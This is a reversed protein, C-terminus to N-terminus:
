VKFLLVQMCVLQVSTFQLSQTTYLMQSLQTKGWVTFTSLLHVRPHTSAFQLNQGIEILVQISHPKCACVTLTSLKHESFQVSVLQLNQGTECFVHTVHINGKVNFTSLLHVRFQESAFQLNHGTVIPAQTSHM